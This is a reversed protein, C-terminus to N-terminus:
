RPNSPSYSATSGRQARRPSRRRSRSTRDQPSHCASAAAPMMTHGRRLSPAQDRRRRDDGPRFLCPSTDTRRHRRHDRLRHGKTRRASRAGGVPGLIPKDTATATSRSAPSTPSAVWALGDRQASNQHHRRPHRPRAIGARARAEITWQSPGVQEALGLRELKAARGLMLRRLEPDENHSTPAFISLGVARTPFTASRAIWVPGANLTSRRRWDM